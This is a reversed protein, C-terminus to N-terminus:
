KIGLKEGKRERQRNGVDDKKVGTGKNQLRDRLKEGGRM